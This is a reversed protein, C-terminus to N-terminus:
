KKGPPKPPAAPADANNIDQVANWSGDAQKKYITVYKGNEVVRKKTKPDTSTMTYTGRAYALDGSKAVEVQASHFDISLNKDEMFPKLGSNIAEKGTMIPVDPIEVSADDAYHSAIRQVDKSAWDKNWAVEDDRIAKADAERTDPPAPPPAQECGALMLFGLVGIGISSRTM